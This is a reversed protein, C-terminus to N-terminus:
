LEQNATMANQIAELNYYQRGSLISKSHPVLSATRQGRIHETLAELNIKNQGLM